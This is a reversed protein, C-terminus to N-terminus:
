IKVIPSLHHRIPIKDVFFVIQQYNWLIEYTHFDKSPDFWLHFRQERNGRDNSFLNTQLLIGKTLIFEFDIEDHPKSYDGDVLNTLYFTTVLGDSNNESIKMRM